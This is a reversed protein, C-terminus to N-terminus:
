PDPAPEASERGGTGSGQDRPQLFWMSYVEADTGVEQVRTMRLLNTGGGVLEAPIVVFTEDWSEQGGRMSLRDPVERGNITIEYHAENTRAFRALL